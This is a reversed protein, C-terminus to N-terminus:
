FILADGELANDGQPLPTSRLIVGRTLTATIDVYFPHGGSEFELPGFRPDQSILTSLDKGRAAMPTSIRFAIEYPLMKNKFRGALQNALECIWDALNRDTPEGGRRYIPHTRRILEVPMALGIGGSIQASVIGVFAAMSEGTNPRVGHEARSLVFAGSASFLSVCADVILPKITAWQDQNM